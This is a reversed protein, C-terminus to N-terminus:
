YDDLFHFKSSEDLDLKWSKDVKKHEKNDMVILFQIGHNLWLYAKYNVNKLKFSTSKTEENFIAMELDSKQASTLKSYKKM